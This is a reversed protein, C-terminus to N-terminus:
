APPAAAVGPGKIRVKFQVLVQLFSPFLQKFDQTCRFWFVFIGFLVLLM